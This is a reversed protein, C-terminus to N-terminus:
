ETESKIEDIGNVKGKGEPAGGGANKSLEAVLIVESGDDSGFKHSMPIKQKEEDHNRPQKEFAVSHGIAAKEM